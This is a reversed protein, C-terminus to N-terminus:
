QVEVSWRVVDEMQQVRRDKILEGLMAGIEAATKTDSFYRTIEPGPGGRRGPMPSSDCWGTLWAATPISRPSVTGVGRAPSLRDDAPPRNFGTETTHHNHRPPRAIARQNNGGTRGAPTRWLRVCRSVNDSPHRHDLPRVQATTASNHWHPRTTTM